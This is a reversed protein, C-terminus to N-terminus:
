LAMRDKKPVVFLAESRPAREKKTREQRDEAGRIRSRENRECQAVPSEPERLSRMPSVTSANPERLQGQTGYNEAALDEDNPLRPVVKSHPSSDFIERTRRYAGFFLQRM